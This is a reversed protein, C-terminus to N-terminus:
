LSQMNSQLMHLPPNQGVEEKLVQLVSQERMAIALRDIDPMKFLLLVPVLAFLISEDSSALRVTLSPYM